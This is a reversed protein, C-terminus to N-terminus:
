TASCNPPVNWFFFKKYQLIDYFLQRLCSSSYIFIIVLAYLIDYFCCSIWCVWFAAPQAEKRRRWIINMFISNVSSSIVTNGFCIYIYVYTHAVTCSHFLLELCCYCCCNYLNLCCCFYLTLRLLWLALNMYVSGAIAVSLRVYKSAKIYIVVTVYGYTYLYFCINVVYRLLLLLPSVFANFRQLKGDSVKHRNRQLHLSSLRVAEDTRTHIGPLQNHSVCIYTPICVCRRAPESTLLQHTLRTKISQLHLM